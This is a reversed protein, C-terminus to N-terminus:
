FNIKNFYLELKLKAFNLHYFFNENLPYILFEIGLFSIFNNAFKQKKAQYLAFLALKTICSHDFIPM